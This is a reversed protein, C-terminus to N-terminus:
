KNFDNIIYKKEEDFSLVTSNNKHNFSNLFYENLPIDNFIYDIFNQSLLQYHYKSIEFYKAIRLIQAPHNGNIHYVFYSIYKNLHIIKLFKPLYKIILNNKTYIIRSYQIMNSISQKIDKEPISFIKAILKDVTKTYKFEKLVNNIEIEDRKLYYREIENKLSNINIKLITSSKELYSNIYTDLIYHSIYGLSYALVSDRNKCDKFINKITKLTIAIQNNHITNSKEIYKKNTLPSHYNLINPGQAGYIFYLYNNKVIEKYEDQLLEFCKNAFRTHTYLLPM